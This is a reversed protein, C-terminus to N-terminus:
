YRNWLFLSLSKEISAVFKKCHSTRNCDLTAYRILDPENFMSRFYEEFNADITIGQHDTNAFQEWDNIKWGEIHQMADKIAAISDTYNFGKKFTTDRCEWDCDYRTQLADKEGIMCFFQQVDEHGISQNSYRNITADKDENMNSVCHQIETFIELGHKREKREEGTERDCWSLYTKTGSETSDPIWHTNTILAIKHECQIHM